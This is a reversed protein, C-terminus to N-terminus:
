KKAKIDTVKFHMGEYFNGTEGSSVVVELVNKELTVTENGLYNIKLSYSGPQLDQVVYFGDYEPKISHYYVGDKEVIIETYSFFKKKIKREVSPLTISGMILSLPVLGVAIKKGSAPILKIEKFDDASLTPDIMTGSYDYRLKNNRYPSVDSLYFLGAKNTKVKNQGIGVGVDALPKEDLDKKGNGNKDIFVAGEVYGQDPNRAHNLTFPRKLNIVQEYSAGLRHKQERDSSSYHYDMKLFANFKYEFSIGLSFHDNENYDVDINFSYKSHQGFRKRIKGTYQWKSDRSTNYGADLSYTFYGRNASFGMKGTYNASRNNNRINNNITVTKGLDLDIRIKRTIDYSLGTDYKEKIRNLYKKTSFRVFYDSRGYNGSIEAEQYSNKNEDQALQNSYQEYSYYFQQSFLETELETIYGESPDELADYYSFNILLPVALTSFRYGAYHKAYRYLEDENRTDYYDFSYTLNNTLGYAIGYKRDDWSLNEGRPNQGYFFNYDWKGQSLFDHGSMVNIIKEEILVGNRDYIKIKFTDKQSRMDLTFQYEKGEVTQYDVVKDNQYIEVTANKPAAGRITLERGSRQVSYDNNSVSIGRIKGNYGLIDNGAVYNDGLTVTKNKLLYPYKLSIDQLEGSAYLNHRINFDGYLLQSSYEMELNGKTEEKKFYNGFDDIDYRLKLMGLDIIRRDAKMFLDNDSTAQQNNKDAEIKRKRREANVRNDLPLNFDPSIKLTYKEAIWKVGKLPLLEAITEKDIYLRGAVEIPNLMKLETIIRREQRDPFLSGAMLLTVKGQEISLQTYETLETLELFSRIDLYIGGDYDSMVEVFEQQLYSGVQLSIMNEFYNDQVSSFVSPCFLLSSLMLLVAVLIVYYPPKRSHPKILNQVTLKEVLLYDCCCVVKLLLASVLLLLSNKKSASAKKTSLDQQKAKNLNAALYHLITFPDPLFFSTTIYL